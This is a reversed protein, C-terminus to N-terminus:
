NNDTIVCGGNTPITITIKRGKNVKTENAVFISNKKDSYVIIREGEAFPLSIEKKIPSNTANIAAVYWHSAHRRAIVVYRGPYGDIFRTEDWTTPVDRMFDMAEIPADHLNNPTLGFMQIPNQFLIATALQFADGTRRISGGDNTRNLCRNLITGGFEMSGVANRIFPHLCANFAECDNFHQNFKLNESALVAESGVYNPYMREWGRPLTCGHFICMIGYDNADSLIQEYLRITEQKDGGWFDVKIGKVGMDRLWSMEKKRTIPNSMCNRPGQPADNWAGNSNYWLFTEVGKERTYQILGEIKDYGIQKDWLGDILTYEYGMESALDIFKKIDDVNCSKDDWIMWHWTARGFKYDISPAYLEEVVDFPITTEVIPQLNDGVTITRWPTFEPLSIQAGTSGFGNNEGPMPYAITYRGDITGESLRSACYEGTVGTESILAWCDGIHFLAPFTYGCGYKSPVGIPQDAVYEEEYSPKSRKWGWMAPSQPSLFTTTGAPLDFTTAEDTVVCCVREAIPHIRYLFAIDNNGVHFIVDMNREGSYEYTVTLRNAEYYVESVKCRNLTYSDSVNEINYNRFVADATYTGENTILGLPSPEIITQNKYEITYTPQGARSSVAVRVNGNPSSVVIDEASMYM